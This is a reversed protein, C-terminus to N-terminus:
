LKKPRMMQMDELDIEGLLVKWAEKTEALLGYKRRSSQHILFTGKILNFQHALKMMIMCLVAQELFYTVKNCGNDGGTCSKDLKYSRRLNQSPLIGKWNRHEDCWILLMTNPKTGEKTRSISGNKATEM